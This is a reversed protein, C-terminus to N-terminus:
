RKRVKLKYSRVLPSSAPMDDPRGLVIKFRLQTVPNSTNYYAVGSERFAPPLPDNFALVEPLQLYDDQIRSIQYWNAGNDPSVYFQVWLQDKSFEPPVYVEADLAVRDVLGNVRLPKTVMVSQPQYAIQEVLFDRIGVAWRKGTFYERKQITNSSSFSDPAYFLAPNTIPPIPGEVRKQTDKDVYYLHGINSQVPQAQEFDVQVYQASYEPFSWLATGTVVTDATRAAQLNPDAGVWVNKPDLVTWDTGNESVQVQKVLVPYNRNRDLGYPLYSITNIKRVQGLDFRLSLQLVGNSPGKGWDVKQITTETTDGTLTSSSGPNTPLQYTFNLNNAKARDADKVLYQEYEFWKDPQGDVIAFTHANRATEAIFTYVPDGTVPDKTPNTPDTIEQNNGAFGNSNDLIEVKANATLNVQPGIQGLRLIGQSIEPTDGGLSFQPDLFDSSGFADGFVIINSDVSDSYLQLTKLKNDVRHNQLDAKLVETAILNHTFVASARLVDLEQQLINVDTQASAWTRNMKDSTPPEGEVIPEFQLFPEGANQEYRTLIDRLQQSLDEVSKVQGQAYNTQLDQLMALAQAYLLTSPVAQDAM